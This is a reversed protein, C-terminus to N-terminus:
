KEYNKLAESAAKRMIEIPARLGTWLEFGAAGQRVLMEIGSIARAGKKEAETLLLTKLPNFIIDVIVQEKKLLDLPIPTEAKQPSMGVSTTNVVIDAGELTTKLSNVNLEGVRIETKFEQFVRDAIFQASCLSRNLITLEVGKDALIFAIARAAGGAGLIILKKKTVVINNTKLAEYFGMADTNFGKLKGSHNVITNVAGIRQALSDIEDLLPIVAVKHPITVNIGAIELAKLGEIAKVLNGAKVRFPLYAYDLGMERFAANQMVPSLSHEIPDGIIGCIRTKGSIVAEGM